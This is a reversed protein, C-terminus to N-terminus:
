PPCRKRVLIRRGARVDSPPVETELHQAYFFINLAKKEWWFFGQNGPTTHLIYIYIYLYISINTYIKWPSSAYLTKCFCLQCFFIGINTYKESLHHLCRARAPSPLKYLKKKYKLTKKKFFNTKLFIIWARVELSKANKKTFNNWVLTKKEMFTKWRSSESVSRLPGLMNTKYATKAYKKIKNINKWPSSGTVSRLPRPM